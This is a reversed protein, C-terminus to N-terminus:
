PFLFTIYFIALKIRFLSISFHSSNTYTLLPLFPKFPSSQLFLLVIFIYAQQQSASSKSEKIKTGKDILQVNCYPKNHLLTYLLAIFTIILMHCYLLSQCMSFCCSFLLLFTNGFLISLVKEPNNRAIDGAGLWM